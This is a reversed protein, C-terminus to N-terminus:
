SLLRGVLRVVWSLVALPIPLLTLGVAFSLGQRFLAPGAYPAEERWVARMAVEALWGCSYCVNALVGYVIVGLWPFGAPLTQRPPLLSVLGIVTLTVLGAGGVILNFTLRRSEWWGLLTLPTRRYDPLPFLIRTLATV